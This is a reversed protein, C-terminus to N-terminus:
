EPCSSPRRPVSAPLEDFKHWGLYREPGEVFSDAPVPMLIIKMM